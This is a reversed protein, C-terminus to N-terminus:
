RLLAQYLRLEKRLQSYDPCIKGVERWFAQSHNMQILHALEHVVVYDILRLPMKILQWNFRLVGQVTCSGWQTRATSLKIARPAVNMRAAYLAVREKFINEASVQYWQSLADETHTNNATNANLDHTVIDTVYVFLETARRQPPTDFLSTAQSNKLLRLTLTEGMFPITQGDCLKATQGTGCPSLTAIARNESQWKSLKDIVWQAKDQLVSSLWKESARMPINVSLGREDIRLGISRRRTRKLQYHISQGALSITRLEVATQAVIVQPAILQRLKRLM